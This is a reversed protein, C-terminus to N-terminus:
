VSSSKEEKCQLGEEYFIDVTYDMGFILSGSRKHNCNVYMDIKGECKEEQLSIASSIYYSCDDPCLNGLEKGEQNKEGLVDKSYENLEDMIAKRKEGITNAIRKETMVYENGSIVKAGKPVSETAPDYTHIVKKEYFCGKKDKTFGKRISKQFHHIKRYQAKCTDKEFKAPLTTNTIRSVPSCNECNPIKKPQKKQLAM